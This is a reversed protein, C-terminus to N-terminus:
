CFLLSAAPERVSSKLFRISERAVFADFHQDEPIRSFRGVSVAGQRDTKRGRTRGPITRLALWFDDVKRCDPARTPIDWNM